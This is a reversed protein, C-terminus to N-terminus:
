RHRSIYKATTQKADSIHGLLLRHLDQLANSVTALAGQHATDMGVLADDILRAAEELDKINNFMDRQDGPTSPVPRTPPATDGKPPITQAVSPPTPIIPHDAGGVAARSDTDLVGETLASLKM